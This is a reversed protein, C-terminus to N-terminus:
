RTQPIGNEEELMKLSAFANFEGKVFNGGKNLVFNNNSVINTYAIAIERPGLRKWIMQVLFERSHFVGGAHIVFHYVQCHDNVLTVNRELFKHSVESAGFLIGSRSMKLYLYAACETLSADVTTAAKVIGSKEAELKASEMQVCIAPSNMPKFRAKNVFEIKRKVNAINSEEEDTYRQVENMKLTLSTRMAVDVEEHRSNFTLPQFQPLTLLVTISTKGLTMENGKLAM